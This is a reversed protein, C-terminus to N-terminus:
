SPAPRQSNKTEMSQHLLGGWWTLTIWEPLHYKQYYDIFAHAAVRFVFTKLLLLVKAVLFCREHGDQLSPKFFDHQSNMIDETLIHLRSRSVRFIWTFEAGFLSTTPEERKGLYDRKISYLADDHDFKQRQSRSLTRLDTKPRKRHHEEVAEFVATVATMCISGGQRESLLPPDM